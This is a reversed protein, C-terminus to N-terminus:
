APSHLKGAGRKVEDPGRRCTPLQCASPNDQRGCRGSTPVHFIRMSGVVVAEVVRSQAAAPTSAIGASHRERGGRLKTLLHCRVNGAARPLQVPKAEASVSAQCRINTTGGAVREVAHSFHGGERAEDASGDFHVLNVGHRPRTCVRRVRGRGNGDLIDVTGLRLTRLPGGDVEEPMVGAVEHSEVDWWRPPGSIPHRPPRAYWSSTGPAGPSPRSCRTSRHPRLHRLTTSTRLIHRMPPRSHRCSVSTVYTSSASSPPYRPRGISANGIACRGGCREYTGNSSRRLYRPRRSSISGSSLLRGKSSLHRSVTSSGPGFPSSCGGCATEPRVAANLLRGAIRRVRIVGRSADKASARTRSMVRSYTRASASAPMKGTWRPESAAASLFTSTSPSPPRAHESPMILRSPRCDVVFERRQGGRSTLHLLGKKAVARARLRDSSWGNSAATTAATGQGRPVGPRTRIGVAGRSRHRRSNGAPREWSMDCPGLDSTRGSWWRRPVHEEIIWAPLASKKGRGVRRLAFLSRQWRLGRHLGAHLDTLLGLSTSTPPATRWRGLVAGLARPMITWRGRPGGPLRTM